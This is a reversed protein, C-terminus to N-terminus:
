RGRRVGGVPRSAPLDEFRGGRPQRKPVNRLRRLLDEREDQSVKAFSAEDLLSRVRDFSESVFEEWKDSLDQMELQELAEQLSAAERQLGAAALKGALGNGTRTADAKFKAKRAAEAQARRRIVLAASGVGIEGLGYAGAGVASAPLAVESPTSEPFPNSTGDIGWGVGAFLSAALLTGTSARKVLEKVGLFSFTV